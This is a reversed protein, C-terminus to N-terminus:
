QSIGMRNEVFKFGKLEMSVCFIWAVPCPNLTIVFPPLIM